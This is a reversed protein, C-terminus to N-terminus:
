NNSKLFSEFNSSKIGVIDTQWKKSTRKLIDNNSLQKEIIDEAAM